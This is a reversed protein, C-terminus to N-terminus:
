PRSAKPKPRMFVDVAKRKRPLMAGSGSSAFSGIAPKPPPSSPGSSRRGSTSEKQPQASAQKTHTEARVRSVSPATAASGMKRAFSSGRAANPSVRSHKAAHSPEPQEFMAELDDVDLGGSADDVDIDLDDLDEDSIYSGGKQSGMEKAKRLRAERDEMERQKPDTQHRAMPPRIGTLPRAKTVKEQVMGAPARAIQGPRVQISSGASANLRNRTSIEKSERMVRKLLSKPTNVKTRSGGAFRLESQDAAHGGRGRTGRRSKVDRPLRPLIRSDYNMVTSASRDKEEKMGKYANKLAQEAEHKAKADEHQYKAYIKHWSRPNKPVFAERKALVPFDRNIM